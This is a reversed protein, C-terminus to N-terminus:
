FGDVPWFNINYPDIPVNHVVNTGGRGLNYLYVTCQNQTVKWIECHSDTGKTPDFGWNPSKMWLGCLGRQSWIHVKWGPFPAFTGWYTNCPTAHRYDLGLVSKQSVWLCKPRGPLGFCRFDSRCPKTPLWNQSESHLFRLNPYFSFFTKVLYRLKM